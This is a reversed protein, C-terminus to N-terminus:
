EPETRPGYEWQLGDVPTGDLNELRFYFRWDAITECARVAITNRGPQLHVIGTQSDVLSREENDTSELRVQEGNVWVEGRDDFGAFVRLERESESTVFNLAWACAHEANPMFLDNLGVGATPKSYLRWHQLAAGSPPDEPTWTPPRSRDHEPLLGKVQWTSVFDKLRSAAVLVFAASGDPAIVREKVEGDAFLPVEEPLVAFLMHRGPPQYHEYAEATGVVMKERAAFPPARGPEPPERLGDYFRLFVEPQNSLRTTLLLRDYEDYHERFYDVVQRHGYQFGTYYKASYLPYDDRYLAWYRAVSPVLVILFALALAGQLAFVVTRRESVLAALRLLAGAGIAAVLCFAPAGAIGRSASPIENMLAPAIPYLGLWLLPLRMARDPRLLAVIVGLGLLPAFFWYLQGHDGVSHRIIRDNSSEFLFEASFFAAYNQVFARALQLPPEDRALLTTDRFYSGSQERHALDFIVVPAATLLLLGAALATERWRALLPRWYLLAFGALFLPVILKAPVYTYLCLGFLVMAQPLTRRGQTWRVLNTLALIFFFPLTILEFGIRSFHLHWPVVALLLAALLGVTAGMLARGLFFMALVAGVGYLAATLRVALETPGLLAMPLMTSYIFIPNKYSVGFSWVYLPLRAGTEDRGTHLLSYANYGNGAEDCFFGAPLEVLHYVRLALAVAVIAVLV